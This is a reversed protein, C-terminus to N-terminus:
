LTSQEDGGLKQLERWGPLRELREQGEKMLGRNRMEKKFCHIRTNSRRQTQRPKQRHLKTVRFTVETQNETKKDRVKKWHRKNLSQTCKEKQWERERECGWAWDMKSGTSFLVFKILWTLTELLRNFMLVFKANLFWYCYLSIIFLFLTHSFM